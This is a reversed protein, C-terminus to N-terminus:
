ISEAPHCFGLLRYRERLRKSRFNDFSKHQSAVFCFSPKQKRKPYKNSASKKAKTPVLGPLAGASGSNMIYSPRASKPSTTDYACWVLQAEKGPSGDGDADLPPACQLRMLDCWWSHLCPRGVRDPAIYPSIPATYIPRVARPSHLKVKRGLFLIIKM